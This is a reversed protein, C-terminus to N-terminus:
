SKCCNQLLTCGKRIHISSKCPGGGCFSHDTCSVPPARHPWSALIVSGASFHTRDIIVPATALSVFIAARKIEAIATTDEALLNLFSGDLLCALKRALAAPVLTAGTGQMALMVVVGLSYIQNTISYAAASVGTQILDM